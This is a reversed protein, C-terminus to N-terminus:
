INLGKPLLKKIESRPAQILLPYKRKDLWKLVQILNSRSMATCGVTASGNPKRIHMFICSGRGRVSNPNHAIFLGYDYLGSRLVMHEFSRYDETKARNTDIIQNYYRSRTDDVCIHSKRMRYFPYKFGLNKKGFIFPIKFVGAPAKKDGEKKFAGRLKKTDSLGLGVGFGRKGVVVSIPSGARKWSNGVKEFRYLKGTPSSWSKTVVVIM